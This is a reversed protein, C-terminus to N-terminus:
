RMLACAADVVDRVSPPAGADGLNRHPHMTMVGVHAPSTAVYISVVPAGVAAALFVLGTDVGVVVSAGALIGAWQVLGYTEAAVRVPAHSSASSPDDGVAAAVRQAREREVENGWALVCACGRASLARAVAIWHAEPWLKETRATATLLVAYPVAPPLEAPRQVAPELGYRPPGERTYGLARAALDRYREVAVVQDFRPADVRWDYFWSAAAERCAPGTWGFRVGRAMRTVVASKILSQTDLVADYSEARLARLFARVQAHTSSAFPARRWRRGAYRITQRVGPHLAVLDAYADEVVWDIEADPRALRIDSVVPLNHVVDGMSSLKVLLIRM